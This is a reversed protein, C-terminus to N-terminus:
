PCTNGESGAHDPVKTLAIQAIDPSVADTQLIDAWPKKYQALLHLRSAGSDLSLGATGEMRGPYGLLTQTRNPSNHLKFQTM